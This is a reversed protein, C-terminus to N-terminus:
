SMQERIRGVIVELRKQASDIEFEFIDNKLAVAAAAIDTGSLLAQLQGAQKLAQKM